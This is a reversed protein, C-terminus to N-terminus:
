QMRQELDGDGLRELDDDSLRELDGLRELDTLGGDNSGGGSSAGDSEIWQDLDGHGLRELDALGGGNSGGGSIAGDSEIWRDLDGDGLRELDTLGGDNSGGGNKGQIDEDEDMAGSGGRAAARSRCDM